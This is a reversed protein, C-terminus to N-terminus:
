VLGELFQNISLIRVSRFTSLSLLHHDGSVLVEAEGAVAAELFKNDKPDDTIALIKEEPTVFIGKRYLFAGISATVEPPLKFKPRKLVEFYEKVVEVTLVLEFKGARWLDLVRGSTGGLIASVLVNTDLVVRM